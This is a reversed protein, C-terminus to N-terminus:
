ITMALHELVNQMDLTAVALYVGALRLAPFGFLFGAGGAVLGGLPITWLDRVDHHTTLIATTYAGLGMFAGHGLSIQGSYGTLINLGLLAIFYIGVFALQYAHYNSILHPFLAVAV